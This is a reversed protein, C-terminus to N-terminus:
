RTGLPHALVELHGVELQGSILDECDVCQVQAWVPAARNRIRVRSL